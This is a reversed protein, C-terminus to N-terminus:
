FPEAKDDTHRPLSFYGNSSVNLNSKWIELSINKKRNAYLLLYCLTGLIKHGPIM